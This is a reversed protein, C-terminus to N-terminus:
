SPLGSAPPAPPCFDTFEGHARWSSEMLEGHARWSSEMLEGHARADLRRTAGGRTADAQKANELTRRCEPAASGFVRRRHINRISTHPRHAVEGQDRPR